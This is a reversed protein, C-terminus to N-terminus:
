AAAPKEAEAPVDLLPLWTDTDGPATAPDAYRVPVLLGIFDDGIRILWPKKVPGTASIQMPIHKPQGIRFDALFEPNFSPAMAADEAKSNLADRILRDVKPYDGDVLQFTLSAGALGDGLFWMNPQEGDDLTSAAAATIRAGDITLRVAPNHSRSPRFLALLRKIAVASLVADFGAEPEPDLAVRQFGIRYRDTAIATVYKGATRIHVARLTPLTEDKSAHPIVPTLLDRLQTATLTIATM